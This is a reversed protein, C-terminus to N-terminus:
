HHSMRFCAAETHDTHRGNKCRIVVLLFSVPATTLDDHKMADCNHDLFRTLGFFADAPCLFMNLLIESFKGDLKWTVNM